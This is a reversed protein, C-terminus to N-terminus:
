TGTADRAAAIRLMSAALQQLDDPLLAQAGDCEAEAPNDHVEVILGHAGAAIGARGLAAVLHRKGAAHSPDVIVPLHSEHLVVPVAAVDLTYRTAPEFTRIGRECLIVQDNGTALIYEAAQLWEQVTAGLGRKLLVPLGSRGAETLLAYNQMNRAGIQLVDAYRAVLDVDRTDLVETCVPLGSQERGTAMIKLGDEGLGQFSYPSSRPKFAGGRLADAGADKCATAIRLFSEESEVACPGAILIPKKGGVLQSGVRVVSRATGECARFRFHDVGNKHGNLTSNLISKM